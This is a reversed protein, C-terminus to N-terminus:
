CTSSTPYVKYWLNTYSPAQPPPFRSLHVWTEVLKWFFFLRMGCFDGLVFMCSCSSSVFTWLHPVGLEFPPCPPSCQPSTASMPSLHHCPMPFMVFTPYIILNFIFNIGGGKKFHEMTAQHHAVPPKHAYAHGYM